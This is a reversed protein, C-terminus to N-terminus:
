DITWSMDKSLMEKETEAIETDLMEKIRDMSRKVVLSRVPRCDEASLENMGYVRFVSKIEIEKM